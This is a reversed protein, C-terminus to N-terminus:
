KPETREQNLNICHPFAYGVEAVRKKRLEDFLKLGKFQYKTDGDPNEGELPEMNDYGESIIFMRNKLAGPSRDILTEFDGFNSLFVTTVEAIESMCDVMNGELPVVRKEDILQAGFFHVLYEQMEMTFTDAALYVKKLFSNKHTLLNKVVFEMRTPMMLDFRYPMRLTNAWEVIMEPSLKGDCLFEVLENPTHYLVTATYLQEPALKTFSGINPFIKLLSEDDLCATMLNRVVAENTNKFSRHFEILFYEARNDDRIPRMYDPHELFDLPM